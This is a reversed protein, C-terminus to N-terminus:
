PGTEERHLQDVGLYGAGRVLDQGRPGLLLEELRGAAPGPEGDTVLYLSRALPYRGAALNEVSPEVTTGDELRLALPFTTGRDAWAVSLQTIAGRTGAVKSRGEENSGVEPLAVLPARSAEGYLWNAFVEWTGRGPEKNFFVIRRDPGGVESWNRIEGQYIGRVQERSLSRVGGEWVDRSVVLALADVGIAVPRFRVGPYKRHDADNIPRSSMAVDARGDGLSAIGGSSGGLTDVLIELGEEARLIEAARTVVPNVTTSGNVRLPGAGRAPLTALLLTLLATLWSAPGGRGGLAPSDPKRPLSPPTGGQISPLNGEGAPGPPHPTRHAM